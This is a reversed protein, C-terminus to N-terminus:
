NGSMRHTKQMKLLLKGKETTEIESPGARKILGHELLRVLRMCINDVNDDQRTGFVKAAHNSPSNKKICIELMKEDNDTLESVGSTAVEFALNKIKTTVPGLTRGLNGDLRLKYQLTSLGQLDSPLDPKVEQSHVIFCHDRGLIGMFLGFEFLVNDRVVSFTKKHKRLRDDPNFVFVAFDSVDAQKLLSELNYQSAKHTDRRWLTPEMNESALNQELAEAVSLQETSSSIFFRM